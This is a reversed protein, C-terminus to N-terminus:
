DPRPLLQVRDAAHVRESERFPPGQARLWTNPTKWTDTNERRQIFGLATFCTDGKQKRFLHM